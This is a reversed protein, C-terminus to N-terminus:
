DKILELLKSESLIEVGLKQAKEYKSGPNSGVVVYSTKRSVSSTVKAGLLELKNKIEDRTMTDLTGTLVFSMNSLKDSKTVSRNSMDVGKGRLKSILTLNPTQNFFVKVSQAIKTGVGDIDELEEVSADMLSQINGFREALLRAVVKGVMPIGIGSLLKTLGLQKGKSINVIIKEALTDGMRPLKFLDEKTLSFIEAISSLIGLDVLQDIMVEGLGDIDANGRGLFFKVREKLQAPCSSNTCKLYASDEERITDSGCVPCNDPMTFIKESGIRKEKIVKVVKPIVSGAKIVIVHDGVRVDLKHVEDENHLSARAITSGELFVPEFEAVPTIIGTRGVSLKIDTIVTEKEEAPFKYAIAWRPEHSTAGLTKHHKREEIKVVAGDIEFPHNFRQSEIDKIQKIVDEITDAHHSMPVVRFGLSTLRNLLGTQTEAMEKGALGIDYAYFDLNRDATVSPDLQRVSGSAANRTNAFPKQGIEEREHNIRELESKSLVVEGRVEIEEPYPPILKLPITRITRLNGTVDEGEFGDGRTSGISMSGNEYRLNVALGDMKLETSYTFRDSVIRSVRKKFDVLEEESFANGLSLMPKSHKITSFRSEAKQGVRMTPSDLTILEPHEDELNKLERFLLDYQNDSINPDELIYYRYNADRIKERLDTIRKKIDM